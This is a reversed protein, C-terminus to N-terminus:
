WWVAFSIQYMKLSRCCHNGFKLTCRLCRSPKNFCLDRGRGAPRPCARPIQMRVHEQRTNISGTWSWVQLTVSRCSVKPSYLQKTNQKTKLFALVTCFCFVWLCDNEAKLIEEAHSRCAPYSRIGGLPWVEWSLSNGPTVPSCLRKEGEERVPRLYLQGGVENWFHRGRSILHIIVRHLQWFDNKYVSVSLCRTLKHSFPM